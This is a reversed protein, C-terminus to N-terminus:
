EITNPVREGANLHGPLLYSCKVGVVRHVKITICDLLNFNQKLFQDCQVSCVTIGEIKNLICCVSFCKLHCNYIMILYKIDYMVKVAAMTRAM